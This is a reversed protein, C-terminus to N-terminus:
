LPGAGPTARPWCGRLSPSGVSLASGSQPRSSAGIPATAPRDAADFVSRASTSGRVRRIYRTHNGTASSRGAACSRPDVTEALIRDGAAQDPSHAALIFSGEALFVPPIDM